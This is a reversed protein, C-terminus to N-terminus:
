YNSVLMIVIDFWIIRSYVSAIGGPSTRDQLLQSITKFFMTSANTNRGGASYVRGDSFNADLIFNLTANLPDCLTRKQNDNYHWSKKLLQRSIYLQYEHIQKWKEEYFVSLEGNKIRKVDLDVRYVVIVGSNEERLVEDKFPFKIKGDFLVKISFEESKERERLILLSVKHKTEHEYVSTFNIEGINRSSIDIPTPTEADCEFFEDNDNDNPVSTNTNLIFSMSRNGVDQNDEHTSLDFIFSSNNGGIKETNAPSSIKWIVSSNERDHSNNEHTSSFGFIFDTERNDIVIITNPLAVYSSFIMNKTDTNGDEGEMAPKSTIFTTNNNYGSNDM